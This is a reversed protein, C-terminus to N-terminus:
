AIRFAGSAAPSDAGFVGRLRLGRFRFGVFSRPIPCNEGTAACNFNYYSSGLPEKPGAAVDRGDGQRAAESGSREVSGGPRAPQHRIRSCCKWEVPWVIKRAIGYCGHNVEPVIRSVCDSTEM